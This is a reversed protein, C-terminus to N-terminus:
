ALTGRSFQTKTRLKRAGCGQSLKHPPLASRTGFEKLLSIVIPAQVLVVDAGPSGPKSKQAINIPADVEFPHLVNGSRALCHEDAIVTTEHRKIRHHMKRQHQGM